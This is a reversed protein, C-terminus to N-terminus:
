KKAVSIWHPQIEKTYIDRWSDVKNNIALFKKIKKIKTNDTLLKEITDTWLKLDWNNIIIGDNDPYYIRKGGGGPSVVCAACCAKAELVVNPGIEFNSPFVFLDCGKYLEALEIQNLYGLLKLKKPAITKCSDGHINEGAMLTTLKIGKNVLSKHISALLVAGKLEHIRGSFFIVKDEPPINYKKFINQKIKKSNFIKDNIGRNLKTINKNKTENILNKPSYIKDAVMAAKSFKIHSYLKRLMKKEFLEPLKLTEILFNNLKFISIKKLIKEVYYRTYPPTDTHISTTIPINFIKAVLKATRSMCFFQDTTHIIHFKKLIFFLRLNIPSLDTVDADIGIQKLVKSSLVPKITIFNVNDNIIKKENKFGLFFITLHCDTVLFSLSESIRQWYKVHGGASKKLFLDVLVAVKIKKKKIMCNIISNPKKRRSSDM